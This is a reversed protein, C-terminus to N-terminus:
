KGPRKQKVAARRESRSAPIAPPSQSPMGFSIQGSKVMAQAFYGMVAPNHAMASLLEGQNITEGSGTKILLNLMEPSQMMAMIVEADSEVPKARSGYDPFPYQTLKALEQFQSDPTAPSRAFHDLVQKLRQALEKLGSPTNEYEIHRLHAIDFPVKPGKKDRIIITGIRCSHRLGLEYFVNPNPFTVDAVVIDPHMIRTLIDSTITGPIAVDDARTIELTPDARLLAEKILDDYRRKLDDASVHEGSFDQDGIPMVIFCTRQHTMSTKCAFLSEVASTRDFMIASQRRPLSKDLNIHCFQGHPTRRPPVSLSVEPKRILSEPPAVPPRKPGGISVVTVRGNVM